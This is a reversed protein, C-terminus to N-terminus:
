APLPADEITRCTEGACALLAALRESLAALREPPLTAALNSLEYPDAALDYYEREGNLNEIYIVDEGRMANFGPNKNSRDPRDLYLAVPVAHRWTPPQEGALLPALSRGDVYAPVAADAWAACTPALDVLSTLAPIMQGAAVGPGRVVLPVQIAEEYPTGKSLVIRHEGLHYGNDSTLLLYTQELVGTRRLTEVLAAVLEDVALLTRLRARQYADLAAIQPAGLPPIAQVWAPKDRVDAENFSPPRPATAEAFATAHRPAAEAPGHPARPALYLFFPTPTAALFDRVKAALVDTAYRPKYHSLQGNDNVELNFYPERTVGAWTEWGPPVHTAPFDAPLGPDYPYGNLYKGILATHYGAEQLWTALTSAEHGRTYFPVYGGKDGGSRLVGHNHPYQGRLLSARAPACTPATAFCRRFRSGQAVLLEQVAPMAALDDDRLDDLVLVIINPRGAAQRRPQAGARAPGTTRTGGALAAAAGLSGGLARLVARRSAAQGAQGAQGTQGTQGAQGTQGTHASGDSGVGGREEAGLGRGAQHREPVTCYQM